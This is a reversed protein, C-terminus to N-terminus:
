VTPARWGHRDLARRVIPAYVARYSAGGGKRWSGRATNVLEFGIRRCFAKFSRPRHAASECYCAGGGLLKQLDRERIQTWEAWPGLSVGDVRARMPDRPDIGAHHLGDIALRYALMHHSADTPAYPRKEPEAVEFADAALAEDAAMRAARVGIRLAREARPGQDVFWRVAEEDLSLANDRSHLGQIGLLEQYRRADKAFERESTTTEALYARWEAQPAQPAPAFPASILAAFRQEKTAAVYAELDEPAGAEAVEVEWGELKLRYQLGGGGFRMSDRRMHEFHGSAVALSRHAAVVEPAQVGPVPQYGRTAKYRMLLEATIEDASQPQDGARADMWFLLRDAERVRAIAQLSDDLHLMHMQGDHAITRFMPWEPRLGGAVWGAREEDDPRDPWKLLGLSLGTTIAPSAVVCDYVTNEGTDKNIALSQPNRAWAKVAKKRKTEGTWLLVRHGDAELALAHAGANKLTTCACFLAGQKKGGVAWNTPEKAAKRMAISLDSRSALRTAQGRPPRHDFEILACRDLRIGAEAAFMHLTEQTAYADLAITLRSERVMHKVHKWTEARTRAATEGSEGSGTAIMRLAQEIEDILVVDRKFDRGAAHHLSQLTTAVRDNGLLVSKAGGHRRAAPDNYPRCRFLKANSEVLAILHTTVVLRELHELAKSAASSKGLGTPAKIVVLDLLGAALWRDVQDATLLESVWRAHSTYQHESPASTGV